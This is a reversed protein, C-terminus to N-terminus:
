AVHAAVRQTPAQRSQGLRRILMASVQDRPLSLGCSPCDHWRDSLTKPVSAGCLCTRSTGRPNVAIVTRGAYAAKATLIAIFAGWATDSISRAVAHNKVMCQQRRPSRSSLRLPLRGRREAVGTHYLSALLAKSFWVDRPAARPFRVFGSLDDRADSTYTALHVARPHRTRANVYASASHTSSSFSGAKAPLTTVNAVQLDEHVVTDNARVLAHATKHHFDTRTNALKRHLSAVRRRQARRRMSGRKCRALKRQAMRLTGLVTKLPRPNAVTDGTDTTLFATLGVDIGVSRGTQELPVAECECSFVVFWKLGERKLTVTKIAGRVPRHLKVKLAGIGQLTLRKGVLKCGDRHSPFIISDFRHYGKYRPFGGTLGAKRRRYFNEFSRHAHRCTAQLMSFNVAAVDPRLLRIDKLQNAQDDYTLSKGAMKYATRREELCANYLQQDASDANRPSWDAAGAPPDVHDRLPSVIAPHNLSIFRVAGRAVQRRYPSM